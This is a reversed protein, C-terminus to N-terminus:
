RERKLSRFKRQLELMRPDLPTQVPAPALQLSVRQESMEATVTLSSEPPDSTTPLLEHWIRVAYDGEPVQIEVRGDAGTQGFYPTDLVVVYAIMWDHINCGLTVVGAQEFRVPEAQTGSYLPLEFRKAPSFSYVHHRVNDSNPFAVDSGTPIALLRPAFQSDRQDLVAEGARVAAAATPSHLSVVADALPAQGDDVQMILTAAAASASLLSGAGLGLLVVISRSPGSNEANHARM